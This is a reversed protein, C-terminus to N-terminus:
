KKEKDFIRKRRGEALLGFVAFERSSIGSLLLVANSLPHSVGFLQHTRIFTGAITSQTHLPHIYIYIYIHTHTYTYM